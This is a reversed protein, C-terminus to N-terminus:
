AMYALPVQMRTLMNLLGEAREKEVRWITTAPNSEDADKLKEEYEEIRNKIIRSNRSLLRKLRAFEGDSSTNMMNIQEVMVLIDQAPQVPSVAVAAPHSCSSGM